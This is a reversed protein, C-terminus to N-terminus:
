TALTSRKLIRPSGHRHSKWARRGRSGNWATRNGPPRKSSFRLEASEGQMPEADGTFSKKGAFRVRFAPIVIVGTQQTYISFEHRQTFWSDDGITKNGILPSGASKVIATTPLHPLDFSPTGSFPGPSYLTVSMSVGEGTWASKQKLEARVIETEALCVAPGWLQSWSFFLIFLRSFLTLYWKYLAGTPGTGPLHYRVNKERESNPKM